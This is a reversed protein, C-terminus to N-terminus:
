LTALEITLEPVDPLAFCNDAPANLPALLM